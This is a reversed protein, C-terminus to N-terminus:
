RQSILRRGEPMTELIGGDNRHHGDDAHERHGDDKARPSQETQREMREVTRMTAAGQPVQFTRKRDLAVGLATRDRSVHERVETTM